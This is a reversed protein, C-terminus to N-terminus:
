EESRVSVKRGEPVFTEFIQIEYRDKLRDMDAQSRVTWAAFHPRFLRVLRLPVSHDTIHEAAIFDPRGLVNAIQSALLRMLPTKPMRSPKVLGFTLQGRIVDPRNKRYWRVARPDFSEICYPGEYRSLRENVMECLLTIRKDTKIEVVLPVKGDVTELFEDFTPITEGSGALRLQRLESLTCDPLKRTDGCMRKLSEDHFVVLKDDKTIHVDTEIGFGAEVAARFASLSNEPRETNWLGRHAYLGEFGNLPRRPIRPAILFLYLLFLGLLIWIVIM